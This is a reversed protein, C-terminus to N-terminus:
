AAEGSGSAAKRSAIYADVSQPDIRILRESIRIEGVAGSRGMRKLTSLSVNLRRAGQERTLLPAQPRV